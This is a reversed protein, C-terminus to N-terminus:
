AAPAGPSPRTAGCSQGQATFDSYLIAPAGDSRLRVSAGDDSVDWRPTPTFPLDYSADSWSSFDVPTASAGGASWAPAALAVLVALGRLARARGRVPGGSTTGQM